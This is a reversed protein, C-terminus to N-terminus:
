HTKEIFMINLDTDKEIGPVEGKDTYQWISFDYGCEPIQNYQAYWLKYGSLEAMDYYDTILESNAYLMVDYKNGITDFFAKANRTCQEKSIGDTRAEDHAIREFDYVVPLDLKVGDLIELVLKAEAIAEEENLAQSFFYVGIRLGNGRAEKFYEDFYNDKYLLGETYGRWGIRLFVFSIGSDKVQKFDINKNHESVDIGALSSFNEDEYRYYGDKSLHELDYLGEDVIVVEEDNNRRSLSVFVMMGLALLIFLVILIIRLSRKNM